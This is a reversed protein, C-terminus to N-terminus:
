NTQRVTPAEMEGRQRGASTFLETHGDCQQGVGYVVVPESRSSRWTITAISKLGHMVAATSRMAAAGDGLEPPLGRSRVQSRTVRGNTGRRQCHIRRVIM